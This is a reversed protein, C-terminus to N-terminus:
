PRSTIKTTVPGRDAGLRLGPLAAGYRIENQSALVQHKILMRVGSAWGDDGGAFNAEQQNLVNGTGCDSIQILVYYDTMSGRRVVGVLSQAASLQLRKFDAVQANPYGAALYASIIGEESIALRPSRSVEKAFIPLHRASIMGQPKQAASFLLLAQPLHEGLRRAEGRKKVSGFVPKRLYVRHDVSLTDSEVSRLLFNGYGARARPSFVGVCLSIGFHWGVIQIGPRQGGSKVSSDPLIAAHSHGASWFM